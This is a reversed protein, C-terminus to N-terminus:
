IRMGPMLLNILFDLLFPTLMILIGAFITFKIWLDERIKLFHATGTWIIYITYVGLIDVIFLSPFLAKIMAVAYIVSSAYGTFRESLLKDKELQFHPFVYESLIFSVLYFGVGYIMVQKLVIKLALQVEFLKVSFLVGVFSLLAIIGVIPFLYGKYFEDNNRDQGESLIKWTSVPSLILKYLLVFLRKYM